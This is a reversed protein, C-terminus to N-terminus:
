DSCLLRGPLTSVATDFGLHATAPLAFVLLVAVTILTVACIM